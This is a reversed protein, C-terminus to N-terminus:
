RKPYGVMVKQHPANGIQRTYHYEDNESPTVPKNLLSPAESSPIKPTGIRNHLKEVAGSVEGWARKQTNDEIKTKLWDKKGEESGNTASAISKRGHQPRYLNVASIGNSRKVAKILSNSIDNHIASSEEDSGPTLGAYGGINSYANRLLDHIQQRYPERFKEHEPNLGISLVKEELFKKFSLM